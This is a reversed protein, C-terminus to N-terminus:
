LLIPWWCSNMQGRRKLWNTKTDMKMDQNLNAPLQVHLTATTRYCHNAFPEGVVVILLLVAATQKRLGINSSFYYRRRPFQHRPASAHSIHLLAPAALYLNATQGPHYHCCLSAQTWALTACATMM